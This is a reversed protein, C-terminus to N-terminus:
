TKNIEADTDEALNIGPETGWAVGARGYARAVARGAIHKWGGSVHIPKNADISSGTLLESAM